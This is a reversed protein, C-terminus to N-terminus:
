RRPPIGRGFRRTEKPPPPPPEGGEPGEAAAPGEEGDVGTVRLGIANKNIEPRRLSKVSPPARRLMRNTNGAPKGLRRTGPAARLLRRPPPKPVGEEIPQVEM